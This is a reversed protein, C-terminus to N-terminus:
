FPKTVIAEGERSNIVGNREVEFRLAHSKVETFTHRLVREDSVQVGDIFWKYTAGDSPSVQMDLVLEDSIDLFYKGGEIWGFIRPTADDDFAPNEATDECSTILMGIMLVPIMVIHKLTKM